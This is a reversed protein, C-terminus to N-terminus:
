GREIRGRRCWELSMTSTTSEHHLVPLAKCLPTLSTPQYEKNAPKKMCFQGSANGYPKECRRVMKSNRINACVTTLFNRALRWLHHSSMICLAM